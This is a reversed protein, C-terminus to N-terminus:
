NANKGGSQFTAFKQNWENFLRQVRQEEEKEKDYDILQYDFFDFKSQNHLYYNEATAYLKYCLTQLNIKIERVPPNGGMYGYMEPAYDHLERYKQVMITFHDIKCKSKNITPAGQHLVSCRLSYVIEGTLDPIQHEPDFIEDECKEPKGIYEDYWGVYRERNKADPFEAKGCIDPLLLSMTLAAMYQNNELSFKIEKILQEIM